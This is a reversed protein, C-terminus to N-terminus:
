GNAIKLRDPYLRGANEPDKMKTAKIWRYGGTEISLINMLFFPVENDKSLGAALTRNLEQALTHEFLAASGVPSKSTFTSFIYKNKSNSLAAKEAIDAPSDFQTNELHKLYWTRLQM